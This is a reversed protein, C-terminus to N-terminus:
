LYNLKLIIREDVSLSITPFGIQFYYFVNGMKSFNNLFKISFINIVFSNQWHISNTSQKEDRGRINLSNLVTKMLM